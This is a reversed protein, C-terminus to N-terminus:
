WQGGRSPTAVPLAPRPIMADRQAALWAFSAVVAANFKMDDPQLREWVDHSTHQTRPGYDLSDQIFQFGPLGVGISPTVFSQHDTGGTEGITVTNIGLSKFPAMWAEFIPREAAIGEIYIGRIKGAGEGEM